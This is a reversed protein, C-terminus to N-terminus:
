KAIAQVYELEPQEQANVKVGMATESFHFYCMNSYMITYSPM